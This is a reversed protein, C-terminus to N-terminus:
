SLFRRILIVAAVILVVVLAAIAIHQLRRRRTWEPPVRYAQVPLTRRYGNALVPMLEPNEVAELLPGEVPPSLQRIQEVLSQATAQTYEM